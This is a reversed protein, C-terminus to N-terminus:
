SAYAAEAQAIIATIERDIVDAARVADSPNVTGGIRSGLSRLAPLMVDYGKRGLSKAEEMPVLIGRREMEERYAREAAFRGDRANNYARIAAETKAAKANTFAAEEMEVAAAVSSELSSLDAVKPLSSEPPSKSTEEPPSETPSVESEAPTGVGAGASRYGVGYKSNAVRWEWAAELSNTPCGKKICSSVYARSPGSTGQRQQWDRAIAAATLKESSPASETSASPESETPM